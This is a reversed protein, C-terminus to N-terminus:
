EPDAIELYPRYAPHVEYRAPWGRQEHLNRALAAFKAEDRADEEYAFHDTRTEVGLFSLQRLRAVVQELRDESLGARTVADAVWDPSLRAESGAFEFLVAELEDITLGNEVLLAEFAFQSYYQEAQRIDQVEIRDHRANVAATLAFSCFQVIDRPRPLVRRLIYQRVEMGDVEPVFFRSWLEEAASDLHSALYRREIVRLLLSPDNWLLRSVPIKDPERAVRTVKEFIDSRLFVALSIDIPSRRSDHKQFTIAVRRIATLLGLLLFSLQQLDATRDWAKDL